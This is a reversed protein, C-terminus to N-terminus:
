FIAILWFYSAVVAAGVIAGAFAMYILNRTESRTDPPPPPPQFGGVRAPQEARNFSPDIKITSVHRAKRVHRRTAAASLTALDAERLDLGTLNGFDM